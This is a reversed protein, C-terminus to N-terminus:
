RALPGLPTLWRRSCPHQGAVLRELDHRVAKTVPGPDPFASGDLDAVPVALRTTSTVFLEDAGLVEAWAVPRVEVALGARRAVDIAVRRMIGDLVVDLPPAVVTHGAVVLVSTTTSEALDGSATRFVVDDWGEGQAALRELVGPTYSAAVKAGPPLIEPPLKPGAASRLRLGSSRPPPEGLDGRALAAVVIRPRRTVPLADFSPEAYCATLKVWDADPNAVAVEAVARELAALDHAPEMGVAEMSHGFRAVHERLGLAAPGDGTSHLSLVDFVATGRQLSQSLVHVTAEAFPVLRGDVWVLRAELM